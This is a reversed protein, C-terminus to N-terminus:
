PEDAKVTTITSRFDLYAREKDTKTAADKSWLKTRRYSSPNGTGGGSTREVLGAAKWRHLTGAIFITWREKDPHVQLFATKATAVTFPESLGSVIDRFAVTTEGGVRARVRAPIAPAREKRTKRIEVRTQGGPTPNHAIILPGSFTAESQLTRLTAACDSLRKIRDDLWALTDTISTNM